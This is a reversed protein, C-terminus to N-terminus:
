GLFVATDFLEVRVAEIEEFTLEATPVGDLTLMRTVEDIIVHHGAPVVIQLPSANLTATYVTEFTM